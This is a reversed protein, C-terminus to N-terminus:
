YQREEAEEKENYYYDDILRGTQQIHKQESDQIQKVDIRSNKINYNNTIHNNQIHLNINILFPKKVHHFLVRRLMREEKLRGYIKIFEKRNMAIMQVIGKKKYVTDYLVRLTKGTQNDILSLLQTDEFQDINADDIIISDYTDDLRRLDEKHNVILTKSLKEKAVAKFFQTKGVGSRGVLLLTKNPNQIWERLVSDINFDKLTFPTDIRDIKTLLEIKKIDNFHKKLASVSVGALAKEKHTQSYDLLAKEVGKEKVQQYIFEKATLLEGERLNELNTIYQKDKCVYHVAGEINHIPKYNGHAVQGDIELDLLSHSKIDFKKSRILLVHFHTGGDTHAEQSIIYSFRGLKYQLQELLKNKTFGTDKSIQSYTLLIKKAAIRFSKEQKQEQKQEKYEECM